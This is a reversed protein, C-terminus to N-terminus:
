KQPSLLTSQLMFHMKSLHGCLMSTQTLRIPHLLTLLLNLYPRRFPARTQENGCYIKRRVPKQRPATIHTDVYVATQHDSVGPLAECRNILAPKNTLFIDLINDNRTGFNVIQDLGLDTITSLFCDNLAKPYQYSTTCCTSWDIDPLNFDGALWFTAKPNAGFINALETCLNQMYNVDRNTPRYVGCIILPQKHTVIKVAQIECTVNTITLNVDVPNLNCKVGM